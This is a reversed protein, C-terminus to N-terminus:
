VFPLFIVEQWSNHRDDASLIHSYKQLAQRRHLVELSIPDSELLHCSCMTLVNLAAELEWTHM